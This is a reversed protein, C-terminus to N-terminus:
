WTIRVRGDGARVGPLGHAGGDDGLYSSGGGGGAAYASGGGFWGGGGGAVHYLGAGGGLGAGGIAGPATGAAGGFSQTGGGGPEWEAMFSMGPGGILLGGLGGAGHDPCGCQGGGGGGAVLVRDHIEAGGRRLDSGGGGGGGFEGGAGGGNYGAAGDLAGRGGVVIQLVEGPDVELRARVYAGRGGDDQTEGGDIACCRSGGGQAGWLEVTIQAVCSPVVFTEAAGTFVFERAEEAEAGRRRDVCVGECRLQGRGCPAECYGAVCAEDGACVRDGCHLSGLELELPDGEVELAADCGGAAVWSAALALGMLGKLVVVM